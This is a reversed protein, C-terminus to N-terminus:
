KSGRETTQKVKPRKNLKRKARGASSNAPYVHASDRRILIHDNANSWPKFLSLPSASGKTIDYKFGRGHRPGSTWKFDERSQFGHLDVYVQKIGLWLILSTLAAKTHKSKEGRNQNLLRQNNDV